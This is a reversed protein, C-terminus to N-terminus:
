ANCDIAIREAEALSITLGLLASRHSLDSLTELIVDLAEGLPHPALEAVVVRHRLTHALGCHWAHPRLHLDADNSEVAVLDDVRQAVAPAELHTHTLQIGVFLRRLEDRHPISM